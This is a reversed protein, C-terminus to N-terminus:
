AIGFAGLIGTVSTAVISLQGFGFCISRAPQVMNVYLIVFLVRFFTFLSITVTLALPNGGAIVASWFTAIALPVSEVMNAASRQWPDFQKELDVPAVEGKFNAPNASKVHAITNVMWLIFTCIMAAQIPLEMKTLDKFVM